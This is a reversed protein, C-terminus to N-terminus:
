CQLMLVQVMNPLNQREVFAYITRRNNDEHDLEVPRGYIARDLMGSALLLSDRIQELDLRSRNFRWYYQNSPDIENQKVFKM